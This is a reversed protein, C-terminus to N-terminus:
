GRANLEDIYQHVASVVVSGEGVASAVRKVSGSRVDGVAFIGPCSTEFQSRGGAKEGTVIFGKEDLMCRGDLWNTHPAAGIMIFLARTSIDQTEGSQNNKITVQELSREGHLQCIETHPRITIRPHNELRQVLYSSMTSKLGAGRILVHVHKAHRSMFMAAQGASNGGGVIIAETNKCFRAELDTAAYYVGAGEFEELRTLPLRRYQVGTAVVVSKACIDAGNCLKIRWGKETPELARATRPAAFLAGFKISQIQGRYALDSGSIGTPFGMYNEIRSSTGAQGGIATNEITITSLGESAGYVAAALGGPGAGIVALDANTGDDVELNMGIAWAIGPNDPTQVVHDGRLVVNVTNPDLELRKVMRKGSESEPDLWRHPIRNRGVFELARMVGPDTEPGLITLNATATKMLVERRASFASVVVDAIEPNQDITERLQPCTVRVVEADEMVKCTIFPKQGSLLGLEGIFANEDAKGILGDGDETPDIFHVLGSLIVFFDYEDGGATYLMTGAPVKEVTGVGKFYEIQDPTLSRFADERVLASLEDKIEANRTIPSLSM